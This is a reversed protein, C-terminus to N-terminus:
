GDIVFGALALALLLKGLESPQFSFFPLDFSRRSGRASFGFLIVLSVSAILFTYIGVRLERFRSYDIQTLAIMGIVGLIGYIGQREVYYYPDGPIDGQTAQALAFVSFGVLAIAAFALIPDMYPVGIRELLSPHTTFPEARRRPTTTARSPPNRTLARTEMPRNPEAPPRSPARRSGSTSLSSPLHPLRQPRQVSDVM